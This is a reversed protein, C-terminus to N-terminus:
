GLEAAHAELLLGLREVAKRRLERSRATPHPLRTIVPVAFAARVVLGRLFGDRAEGTEIGAAEAYRHVVEDVGETPAAASTALLGALDMGGPARAALQWDVFVIREGRALINDARMDMSCVTTTAPAGPDPLQLRGLVARAGPGLDRGHGAVFDPLTAHADAFVRRWLASTALEPMAVERLARHLTGLRDVVRGLEEPGLGAAQDFRRDDAVAEMVVVGAGPAVAVVRPLMDGTEARSAALYFAAEHRMARRSDLWDIGSPRSTPRKVAIAGAVTDLLVIESLLGDGPM